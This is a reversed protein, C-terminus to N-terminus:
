SILSDLNPMFIFILLVIFINTGLLGLKANKNLTYINTKHIFFYYIFFIISSVMNIINTFILQHLQKNFPVKFFNLISSIFKIIKSIYYNQINFKDLINQITSIFLPFLTIVTIILSMIASLTLHSKKLFNLYIGLAFLTIAVIITTIIIHTNFM